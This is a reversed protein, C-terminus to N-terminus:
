KKSSEQGMQAALQKALDPLMCRVASLMAEGQPAFAPSESTAPVEQVRRRAPGRRKTPEVPTPQVPPPPQPASVPVQPPANSRPGRQLETRLRRIESEIQQAEEKLGAYRTTAQTKKRVAENRSAEKRATESRKQWRTQQAEEKQQAQSIRTLKKQLREIPAPARLADAGFVEGRQAGKPPRVSGKAIHVGVVPSPIVERGDCSCTSQAAAEATKGNRWAEIFFPRLTTMMERSVHAGRYAQQLYAAIMTFFSPPPLKDERSKWAM